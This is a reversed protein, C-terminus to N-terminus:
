VAGRPARGAEAYVPEVCRERVRRSEVDERDDVPRGTVGPAAGGAEGPAGTKKVQVLFVVGGFADAAGSLCDFPVM